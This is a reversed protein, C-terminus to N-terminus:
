KYKTWSSYIDKIGFEHKKLNQYLFCYTNIEFMSEMLYILVEFNRGKGFMSTFYPGM